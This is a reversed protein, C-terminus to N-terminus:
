GGISLVTDFMKTGVQLMKAAAQYAYQYRLLNAAEEDLNVGSQSDRAAQAQELLSTQAAATVQVERTKNGVESVLQAYVGQFSSVGGGGGGLMTNQTQLKGMLVANRSDSNGGVNKEVIFKDGGAPNGTIEFSIGGFSITAGSTYPVVPSAPAVASYTTPPNGSVTVTAGAPFGSFTGTAANFTLSLSAGPLAYGPAVNPASITGNGINPAGPLGALSRVPAAAAILRADASVAPNIRLDRAFERTPEILFRDGQAGPPNPVTIELGDVTLTPGGATGAAVSKGDSLRTVSFAGAAGFKVEYDSATLETYFSGDKANVKPAAYAVNVSGPSSVPNAIIKPANVPGYQFINSVFGADAATQGLLDQGLGQQANFILAVSAAVSGLSNAAKDLTESRFRLFGALNGGTVLSEPLEQYSSGNKLGITFREPDARSPRSELQSARQGVVLQQGTGIFVSLSGDSQEVTTTKIEKNLDSILRDRQDLLDNPPQNSGAQAVVIRQNINAIQESYSNILSVTSGVQENVGQYMEAFRKELTQFRTALAEASSIFSQRSPISSPNSAVQQVGKFFEQLAPSLGASVDALLNDIQKIQSTYTNLESATTQSTNIQGQLFDNYVRAVTQVHTGQGIFGSGTALSINTAQGIRQRNYGATNANAINHETTLLGIQAASMGGVGINFLGSSM